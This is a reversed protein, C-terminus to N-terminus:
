VSREFLYRTLVNNAGAHERVSESMRQKAEGIVMLYLPSKSDSGAVLICPWGSLNGNRASHLDQWPLFVRRGSYLPAKIGGPSITVRGVWGFFFLLPGLFLGLCIAVIVNTLLEGLTVVHHNGRFYDRIHAIVAAVLVVSGFVKLSWVASDLLSTYYSEEANRTDM